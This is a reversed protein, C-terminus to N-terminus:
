AQVIIIICTITASVIQLFKSKLKNGPQAMKHDGCLLTMLVSVSALLNMDIRFFNNASIVVNQHRIQLLIEQLQCNTAWIVKHTLVRGIIDYTTSAKRLVITILMLYPSKIVILSFLPFYDPRYLECVLPLLATIIIPNNFFFVLLSTATWVDSCM